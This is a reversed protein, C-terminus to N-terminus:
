QKMPQMVPAVENFLMEISLHKYISDVQKNTKASITTNIFPNGAIGAPPVAKFIFHLYRFMVYSFDDIKRVLMVVSNNHQM